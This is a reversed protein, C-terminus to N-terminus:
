HRLTWNESGDLTRLAGMIEENSSAAALLSGFYCWILRLPRSPLLPQSHHAEHELSFESSYCLWIMLPQEDRDFKSLHQCINVPHPTAPTPHQSEGGHCALFITRRSPGSGTDRATNSRQQRPSGTNQRCPTSRLCLYLGSETQNEADCNWEDATGPPSSHEDLCGETLRGGCSGDLM